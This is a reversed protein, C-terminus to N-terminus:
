KEFTLIINNEILWDKWEKPINYKALYIKKQEEELGNLYPLWNNICYDEEFGQNWKPAGQFLNPFVIWPPLLQKFQSIFNQFIILENETRFGIGVYDLNNTIKKIIIKYFNINESKLFKELESISTESLKNKLEASLYFYHWYKKSFLNLM